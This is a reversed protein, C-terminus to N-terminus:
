PEGREIRRDVGRGLDGHFSKDLEGVLDGDSGDLGLGGDFGTVFRAAIEEGVEHATREDTSVAFDDIHSGAIIAALEDARNLHWDREKGPAHRRLLRDRLTEARATLRVVTMRGMVKEYEVRGASDEIVGALIFVDLGRDRANSRLSRLNVLELQQDFPDDEPAPWARRLEDLDIVQHPIGRERLRDSVAFATSTKGAGVTGNLFLVRTM